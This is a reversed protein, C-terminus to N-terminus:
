RARAAARRRATEWAASALRYDQTTDIEFYGGPTEVAHMTVGSELMAQLLDILYARAFSTSNGFPRKRRVQSGRGATAGAGCMTSAGGVGM